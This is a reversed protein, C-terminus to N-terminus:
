LDGKLRVGVFLRSTIVEPVYIGELGRLPLILSKMVKSYRKFREHSRKPNKLFGLYDPDCSVSKVLCLASNTSVNTPFFRQNSKIYFQLALQLILGRVKNITLRLKSLLVPSFLVAQRPDSM